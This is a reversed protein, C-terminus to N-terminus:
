STSTRTDERLSLEKQECIEVLKDINFHPGFISMGKYRFWERTRHEMSTIAAKFATQIIEDKTAWPSLYWKRTKQLKQESDLVNEADPEYYSMQLYLIDGKEVVHFEHDYFSVDKLIGEIEQKNM